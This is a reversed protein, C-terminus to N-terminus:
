GARDRLTDFRSASTKELRAKGVAAAVRRNRFQHLLIGPIRKTTV